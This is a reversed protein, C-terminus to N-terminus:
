GHAYKCLLQHMYFMCHRVSHDSCLSIACQLLKEVSHMRTRTIKNFIVAADLGHRPEIM